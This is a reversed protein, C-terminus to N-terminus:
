KKSVNKVSGNSKIYIFKRIILYYALFYLVFLVWGANTHFLGVAFAPSVHVGALLLLFLRLVNIAYVGILGLISLGLFRAKHLRKSDLAFLGAFFATYLFMSEIGSCPPGISVVFDNISLVPAGADTVAQAVHYFNSFLSVLIAAVGKSFFLWQKQFFAMANYMIVGAIASIILEKKFEKIFRLIYDKSFVALSFLLFTIGFCLLIGGQILWLNVGSSINFYNTAGRLVYYIAIFVEGAIVLLISSKLSPKDHKVRNIRERYYFGFFLGLFLLVQLADIKSFLRNAITQRFIQIKFLEIPFQFLARSLFILIVFLAVKLLFKKFNTDIKFQKIM